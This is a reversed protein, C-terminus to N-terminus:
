VMIISVMRIYSVMTTCQLFPHFHISVSPFPHLKPGSTMKWWTGTRRSGLITGLRHGSAVVPRLAEEVNRTFSWRRCSPRSKTDVIWSVFQSISGSSGSVVDNIVSIVDKFEITSYHQINCHSKFQFMNVKFQFPGKFGEIDQFIDSTVDHWLITGGQGSGIGSEVPGLGAGCRDFIRSIHGPLPRKTQQGSPSRPTPWHTYIPYLIYLFWLFYIIYTYIYISFINFIYHSTSVVDRGVASRTVNCQLAARWIKSSKWNGTKVPKRSYMRMREQPTSTCLCQTCM